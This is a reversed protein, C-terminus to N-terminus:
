FSHAIATGAKTFRSALGVGAKRAAAGMGVGANAAAGWPTILPAAAPRPTRNVIQYVGPFAKSSEIVRTEAPTGGDAIPAVDENVSAIPAGGDPSSRASRRPRAAKATEPKLSVAVDTTDAKLLVTEGTTDAKLRVTEDAERYATNMELRVDGDSVIPFAGLQVASAAIVLVGAAAVFLSARRGVNRRTDLLRDLRRFLDRKGGFLAQVFDPTIRSRRHEAVRSLCRAYDKPSGTRAIVWDDCAVERELNLERGILLTAPHMWMAAELLAQFLRMWDDRRQIHGDEHLIIQDLDGASLERILSSPMAICPAHLGLVAPGPLRDCLALRARRGGKELWLPLQDEVRHPFSVCEDKLRYLANLEPFIRLLRFLAVSVWLMGILSLVASPLPQVQITVLSRSSAGAAAASTFPAAVFSPLSQWGLFILAAFAGWWLVYRTAANVRPLLHLALSLSVALAVGQWFWTLLWATM